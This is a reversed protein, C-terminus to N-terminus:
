PEKSRALQVVQVRLVKRVRSQHAVNELTGLYGGYILGAENYFDLPKHIAIGLFWTVPNKQQPTRAEAVVEAFTLFFLCPWRVVKRERM